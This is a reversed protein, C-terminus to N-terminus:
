SSWSRSQAFDDTRKSYCLLQQADNDVPHFEINADSQLAPNDRRIRNMKGILDRLSDPRDLPWTRLEYKESNLYEESGPKIPQTKAFNSRRAM